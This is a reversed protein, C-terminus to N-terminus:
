GISGTNQLYAEVKKFDRNGGLGTIRGDEVTTSGAIFNYVVCWRRIHVKLMKGSVSLVLILSSGNYPAMPSGHRTNNRAKDEEVM